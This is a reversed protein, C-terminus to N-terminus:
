AWGGFLTGLLVFAIAAQLALVTRTVRPRARDLRAMKTRLAAPDHTRAMALVPLARAIGFTAGILAGAAASGSGLACAFAVWTLSSEVITAFGLGLQAGFGIGYVWGRYTALWDENM